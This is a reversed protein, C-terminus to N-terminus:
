RDDCIRVAVDRLCRFDDDLLGLRPSVHHIKGFGPHNLAIWKEDVDKADDDVWVFPRGDAYRVLQATKFFTGGPGPSHDMETRDPMGVWPAPCRDFLVVPLEPLGIVPGILSTPRM